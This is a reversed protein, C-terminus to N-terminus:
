FNFRVIVGLEAEVHSVAFVETDSVSYTQRWPVWTASLRAGIAIPPRRWLASAEGDVGLNIASARGDGGTALLVGHISTFHMSVGGGAELALQAGLHPVTIAVGVARDVWTGSFRDDHVSV